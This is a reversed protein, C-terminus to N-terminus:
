SVNYFCAFLFVRTCGLSNANAERIFRSSGDLLCKSVCCHCYYYGLEALTTYTRTGKDNAEVKIAEYINRLTISSSGNRIYYSLVTSGIPNYNYDGVNPERSPSGTPSAGKRHLSTLFSKLSCKRSLLRPYRSLAFLSLFFKRTPNLDRCIPVLIM